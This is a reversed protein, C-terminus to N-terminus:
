ELCSAWITISFHSFLVWSMSALEHKSSLTPKVKGKVKSKLPKILRSVDFPFYDTVRRGELSKTSQFKMEFDIEGRDFESAFQSVLLVKGKRHDEVVTLKTGGSRQLTGTQDSSNKRYKQRFLARLINSM